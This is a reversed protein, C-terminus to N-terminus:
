YARFIFDNIEEQIFDTRLGASLFSAFSCFLEVKVDSFKLIFWFPIVYSTYNGLGTLLWFTLYSITLCIFLNFTVKFCGELNLKFLNVIMMM